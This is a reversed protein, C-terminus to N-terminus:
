PDIWSADDIGMVAIIGVEDNPSYSATVDVFQSSKVRKRLASWLKDATIRLEDPNAQIFVHPERLTCGDAIGSEFKSKGDGSDTTQYGWSRIREVTKRIGPDLKDPDGTMDQRGSM